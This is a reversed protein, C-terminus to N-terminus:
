RIFTIRVKAIDTAEQRKPAWSWARLLVNVPFTTIGVRDAFETKIVNLRTSFTLADRRQWARSRRVLMKVDRRVAAPEDEM